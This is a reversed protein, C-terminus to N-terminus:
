GVATTNHRRVKECVALLGAVAGIPWKRSSAIQIVRWDEISRHLNSKPGTVSHARLQVL